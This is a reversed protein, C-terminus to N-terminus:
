SHSGQPTSEDDQFARLTRVVREQGSQIETQRGSPTKVYVESRSLTRALTGSHFWGYSNLTGEVTAGKPHGKMMRLLEELESWGNHVM